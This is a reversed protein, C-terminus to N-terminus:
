QSSIVKIMSQAHILPLNTHCFSQWAEEQNQEEKETFVKYISFVISRAAERAEPLRDNLLDAAMQLLAVLGFEKIEELGQLQYVYYHRVQSVINLCKIFTQKWLTKM